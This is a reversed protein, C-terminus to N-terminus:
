VSPVETLPATREYSALTRSLSREKLGQVVSVVVQDRLAHGIDVESDERM